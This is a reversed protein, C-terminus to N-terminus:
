RVKKKKCTLWASKTGRTENDINVLEDGIKQLTLKPKRKFGSTEGEWGSPHPRVIAFKCYALLGLFLFLFERWYAVCM